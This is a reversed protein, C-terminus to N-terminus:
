YYRKLSSPPNAWLVEIRAIFWTDPEHWSPGGSARIPDSKLKLQALPNGMSHFRCYWYGVSWSERVGNSIHPGADSLYRRPMSRIEALSFLSMLAFSAPFGDMLTEWRQRELQTERKRISWCWDVNVLRLWGWGVNVLMLWGWGVVGLHRGGRGTPITGQATGTGRQALVTRQPCGALSDELSWGPLCSM